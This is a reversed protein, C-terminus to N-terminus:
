ATVDLNDPDTGRQASSSPEDPESEGGNPSTGGNRAHGRHANGDQTGHQSSQNALENGTQQFQGGGAPQVIDFRDVKLGTASIAEQIRSLSQELGRRVAPNEISVRANLSGADVSLQISVRGLYEPRLSVRISQLQGRQSVQIKRIIQDAAKNIDRQSLSGDFQRATSTQQSSQQQGSGPQQQSQQGASSQDGGSSQGGAAGSEAHQTAIDMRMQQQFSSTAGDATRASAPATTAGAPASEPARGLRQNRRNAEEVLERESPLGSGAPGGSKEVPKEAARSAAREQQQEAARQELRRALDANASPEAKGGTARPTEASGPAGNGTSEARSGGPKEASNGDTRASPQAEARNEVSHRVDAQPQSRSQSDTSSGSQATQGQTGQGVTSTANRAGSETAQAQQSQVPVSRKDGPTGPAAGDDSVPAGSAQGSRMRPRSEGDEAAQEAAGSGGAQAVRARGSEGGLSADQGQRRAEGGTDSSQWTRLAAARDAPPQIAAGPEIAAIRGSPVSVEAGARSRGADAGTGAHLLSNLIQVLEQVAEPRFGAVPAGDDAGSGASQWSQLLGSLGEQQRQLLQLLAAQTQEDMPAMGSEAAGQALAAQLDADANTDSALANLSRQLANLARLLEAALGEVAEEASAPVSEPLPHQSDASEEADLLAQMQDVIQEIPIEAEEDGLQQESYELQTSNLEIRVQAGLLSRSLEEAIGLVGVGDWYIDQLREPLQEPGVQMADFHEMADQLQELLGLFQNSQQQQDSTTDVRANQLLNSLLVSQETQFYSQERGSQSQGARDDSSIKERLLWLEKRQDLSLPQAAADFDIMRQRLQQLADLLERRDVGYADFEAAAGTLLSTDPMIDGLASQANDLQAIIQAIQDVLDDTSPLPELAQQIQRLGDAMLANLKQLDAQQAQAGEAFFASFVEAPNQGQTSAGAGNGLAGLLAGFGGSGDSSAAGSLDGLGSFDIRTSAMVAMFQVM